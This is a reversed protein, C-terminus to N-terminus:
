MGGNYDVDTGSTVRNIAEDILELVEDIAMDYGVDRDDFPYSINRRDVEARLTMLVNLTDSQVPLWKTFLKRLM